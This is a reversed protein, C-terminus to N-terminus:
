SVADAIGNNYVVEELMRFFPNRLKIEIKDDKTSDYADDFKTIANTMKPAIWRPVLDEKIENLVEESSTSTQDIKKDLIDNLEDGFDEEFIVETDGRIVDEMLKNGQKLMEMSAVQLTFDEHINLEFDTEFSHRILILLPLNIMILSYLSRVAKWPIEMSMLDEISYDEGNITILTRYRPHLVRRRVVSTNYLKKINEVAKRKNIRTDIIDANTLLEVLYEYNFSLEVPPRGYKKGSTKGKGRKGVNVINRNELRKKSRNAKESSYDEGFLEQYTSPGESLLRMIVRFDRKSDPFDVEHYPNANPTIESRM